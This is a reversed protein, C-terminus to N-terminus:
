NFLNMSPIKDDFEVDFRKGIIFVGGKLTGKITVKKGSGKGTLIMEMLPGNPDITAEGKITYTDNKNKKLTVVGISKATGVKEKGMIIDFQGKKLWINYNNPNDVDVSVEITYKSNSAPAFNQLNFNGITPETFKCSTIFFAIAFIYWLKKSM